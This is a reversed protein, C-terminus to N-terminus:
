AIGKATPEKPQRRHKSFEGIRESPPPFPPHDACTAPQAYQGIFDPWEILIGDEERRRRSEESLPENIDRPVMHRLRFRVTERYPPPWLEAPDQDKRIAAILKDFTPMHRVLDRLLLASARSEKSRGDIRGRSNNCALAIDWNLLRKILLDYLILADSKNM